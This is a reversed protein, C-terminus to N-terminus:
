LLSNLFAGLKKLDEDDSTSISNEKIFAKIENEKGPVLALIDKKKTSMFTVPGNNKQIYYEFDAKKYMPPKYTQYGGTPHEEPQLYIREKKYIKVNPNESILVLYHQSGVNEKDTYEVYQYSAKNNTLRVTMNEKPQLVMIEENVKIELEDSYANYRVPTIDKSGDIKAPVFAEIYYQTGQAPESPAKKNYILNVSGSNDVYTQQAVAMSSILVAPIIILLKPLKM